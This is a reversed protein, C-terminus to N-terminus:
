ATEILKVKVTRFRSVRPKGTSEVEMRGDVLAATWERATVSMLDIVEGIVAARSTYKTSLEFTVVWPQISTVSESIVQNGIAIKARVTDKAHVADNADVDVCLIIRFVPYQVLWCDADESYSLPLKGNEIAANIYKRVVGPTPRNPQDSLAKKLDAHRFMDQVDKATFSVAGREILYEVLCQTQFVPPYTEFDTPKKKLSALFEIERDSLKDM